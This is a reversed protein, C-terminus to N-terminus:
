LRTFLFTTRKRNFYSTLETLKEDVLTIAVEDFIQVLNEGEGSSSSARSVAIVWDYDNKLSELLKKFLDSKILETSFRSIGGAAIYDYGQKQLIKPASKGNELYQWLGPMEEPNPARNFQLSILLVRQGSKSLLQAFQQSYDFGRSGLMLLLARGGSDLSKSVGIYSMLRRLTNLDEDRLVELSTVNKSLFGAVQLGQDRLNDATAPIGKIATKGLIFGVSLFFGLVGGLVGFMLFNSRVPHIPPVAVDVPASQSIDLHASINKQEVLKTIEEVMKRSMELHQEILKESSWKEPLKEMEKKLAEQQQGIAHREQKMNSIRSDIYDALHQELVSIKQQILQLQANQVSLLKEQFLKKRLHLLQMTQELHLALFGKQQSLENRLRDLEKQSRNDQDQIMLLLNSARGIIERSVPDELVSSLSSPEFNPDKMQNLIFEDHLIEAEIENLSKSYNMYLEHATALNIGQFELQVGQQHALREQVIKEEVELLHILNALYANFNAKAKEKNGQGIKERWEKIMYKPNNSLKSALPLTRNQALATMLAKAEQASERINELEELQEVFTAKLKTPDEPAINRLAIDISDAQQRYDRIDSLIKNIVAPDGGDIWYREYFVIGEERAKQLRRLEMDILLQKQTYSQQTQFLFDITAMNSTLTKAHEEMMSKLKVGTEDQRKHLYAIQEQSIRRHENRLHAQYLSMLTNLYDSAEHRLPHVYTLKILCKDNPDSECKFRVMQKNAAEIASKINLIFRTKALPEDSQRVLIFSYDPGVFTMGLSGHGVEKGLHDTLLFTEESTFRVKLKIPLEGSYVVDEVKLPAIADTLVPQQIDRFFAIEVKLNNKINNLHKFKWEDKRIEAQYNKKIVAREALQRSKMMSVAANENSDGGGVLVALNLAKGGETATKAKERFTSKAQYQIPRTLAYLMALFCLALSWFIIAKKKKKCLFVVESLTLTSNEENKRKENM